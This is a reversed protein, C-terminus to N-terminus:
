FHGLIEFHGSIGWNYVVWICISPNWSYDKKCTRYYKCECQCKENNWKKNSNCTTSNFKGKSNCSIHRVM